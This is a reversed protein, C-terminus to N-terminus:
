WRHSRPSFPFTPLMVAAVVLGVLTPALRGIRDSIRGVAVNLLTALLYSAALIWAITVATGHLRVVVLPTAITGWSITVRSHDAL